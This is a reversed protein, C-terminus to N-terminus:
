HADHKKTRLIWASFGLAAILAVAFVWVPTNVGGVTWLLGFVVSSCLKSLGIATNLAAL